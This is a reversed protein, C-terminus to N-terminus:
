GELASKVLRNRDPLFGPLGQEDEAVDDPHV